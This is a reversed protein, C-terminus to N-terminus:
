LMLGTSIVLAGAVLSGMGIKIGPLAGSTVRSTKVNFGLSKCNQAYDVILDYDAVAALSVFLM